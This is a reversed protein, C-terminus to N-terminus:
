GNHKLGNISLTHTYMHVHVYILNNIIPYCTCIYPILLLTILTHIYMYLILLLTILTHKCMIQTIHM